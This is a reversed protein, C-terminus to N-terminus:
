TIMFIFKNQPPLKESLNEESFSRATEAAPGGADKKGSILMEPNKPCTWKKFVYTNANYKTIKGLIAECALGSHERSKYRFESYFGSRWEGLDRM